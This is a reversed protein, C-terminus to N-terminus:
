ATEAAGLRGALEGFDAPPAVWSTGDPRVGCAITAYTVDPRRWYIQDSIAGPEEAFRARAIRGLTDVGGFTCAGDIPLVLCAHRDPVAVLHGHGSAAVYRDVFLVHSAAFYSPGFLGTITPGGSVEVAHRELAPESRTAETALALLEDASRQWRALDRPNVYVVHEPNDIAVAAHLDPTLSRAVYHGPNATLQRNPILRIRLRPAAVEFAMAAPKATARRLHDAILQPWRDRDAAHCRRVINTLGLTGADTHLVGCDIHDRDVAIEMQELVRVLSARFAEYHEGLPAAWDPVTRDPV